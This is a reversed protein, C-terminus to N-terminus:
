QACSVNANPGGPFGFAPGQSQLRGNETVTDYVRQQRQYESNLDHALGAITKNLRARAQAASAGVAQAQSSQILSRAITYYGGVHVQLSPDVTLQAKRLTRVAFTIRANARYSSVRRAIRLQSVIPVLQLEPRLNCPSMATAALVAALFM